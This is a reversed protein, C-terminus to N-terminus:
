ASLRPLRHASGWRRVFLALCCVVGAVVSWLDMHDHEILWGSLPAATISAVSALSQSLGLVVGQEHKEAARSLLSTLNPRLMANGAAILATAVVLYFVPEIRPLMLFGGGLLVLGVAVLPAEGFRRVLRGLLGGQIVIGVAGALGYLWGIEKAGFAHGQWTYRREAFLAFGSMFMSFVFLYLFFELLIGGIVPRAFYRGWLAWDFASARRGTPLGSPDLTHAPVGKPLITATCLISTASLAAAALFPAAYSIHSLSAAITPGLMFGVGFAIGIIAFSKARNEPATNDAIYAQAVSLNGATFGDILRGLFVWWLSNAGAIILFGMLTGCQSLLLVPRRGWKDSLGGLIPGAILQCFAYTPVLLSAVFASAGFKEAYLPLLPLVITLGLVDVLVILFIPYLPKSSAPSTSEAM